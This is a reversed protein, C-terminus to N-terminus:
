GSGDPRLKSAAARRKPTSRHGRRRRVVVTIAGTRGPRTPHQGPPVAWTADRRRSDRHPGSRELMPMTVGSGPSTVPACSSRYAPDRRRQRGCLHRFRAHISISARAGSRKRPSNSGQVTGGPVCGRVAFTGVAHTTSHRSGTGQRSRGERTNLETSETLRRTRSRTVADATTAASAVTPTSERQKDPSTTRISNSGVAVRVRATPPTSGSL